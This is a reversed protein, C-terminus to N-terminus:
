GREPGVDSPWRARGADAAVHQGPGLRQRQDSCGHHQGWGIGHRATWEPQGTESSDPPRPSLKPAFHGNSPFMLETSAASSNGISLYTDGQLVQTAGIAIPLLPPCCW